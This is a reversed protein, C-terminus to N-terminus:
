VELEDVLHQRIGTIEGLVGERQGKGARVCVQDRRQRDGSVRCFTSSFFELGLLNVVDVFVCFFLKM